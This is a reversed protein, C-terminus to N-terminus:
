QSAAVAINAIGAAKLQDMVRVVTGHRANRDAQIVASDTPQETLLRKVNVAVREIDLRQKDLWVDGEASIAIVLTAQETPQGHAAQPREVAIGAEKVFSSTVIFFILMIFVIDLMPTLDVTAEEDDTRRRRAM